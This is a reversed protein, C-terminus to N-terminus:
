ALATIISRAEDPSLPGTLVDITLGDAMALTTTARDAIENSPVGAREMLEAIDSRLRSWVDRYVEGIEPDTLARASFAIWVRATEDDVSRPVLIQLLQALIQQATKNGACAAEFRKASRAAVTRMAARLVSVVESADEGDAGLNVHIFSLAFGLTALSLGAILWGTPTRHGHRARFTGITLLGVSVFLLATRVLAWAHLADVLPRGSSTGVLM